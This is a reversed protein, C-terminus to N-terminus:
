KKRKKKKKKKPKKNTKNSKKKTNNQKEEKSYTKELKEKLESDIKNYNYFLKGVSDPYCYQYNDKNKLYNMNDKIKLFHENQKYLYVLATDTSKTKNNGSLAPRKDKANKNKKTSKDSKDSNEMEQKPLFEPLAKFLERAKEIQNTTYYYLVIHEYVMYIKKLKMGKFSPIVEDKNNYLFEAMREYGVNLRKIHKTIFEYIVFDFVMIDDYTVNNKQLIKTFSDSITRLIFNQKKYKFSQNYSSLILIKKAAYYGDEKLKNKQVYGTISSKNQLTSYFINFLNFLVNTMLFLDCYLLISEHQVKLYTIYMFLFDLILLIVSGINNMCKDNILEDRVTNFEEKTEPLHIKPVLLCGSLENFPIINFSNNGNLSKFVFPNVIFALPKKDKDKFIGRLVYVIDFFLISFFYSLLVSILLFIINFHINNKVALVVIFALIYILMLSFIIFNTNHKKNTKM